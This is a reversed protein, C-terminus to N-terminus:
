QPGCWGTAGSGSGPTATKSSATATPMAPPMSGPSPWANGTIRAPSCAIWWNRTPRRTRIRSLPMLKRSAHSSTRYPRHFAPSDLNASGGRPVARAKRTRPRCSCICRHPKAGLRDAECGAAAAARARRLGLTQRLSRGSQIWRELLKKQAATLRRNSKAPPMLTKPDSSHIRKVLESGALDKPVIAGAELATERVDLRLGAKRKAGDQGHCYFCNESLIPRIDRNFDVANDARLPAAAFPSFSIMIALATCFWRM